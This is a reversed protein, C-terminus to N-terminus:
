TIQRRHIFEEMNLAIIECKKTPRLHNKALDTDGYTFVAVVRVFVGNLFVLTVNERVRVLAIGNSSLKSM